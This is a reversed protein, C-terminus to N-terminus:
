SVSGSLRLLLWLILQNLWETEIARVVVVIDLESFDQLPLLLAFAPLVLVVAIIVFLTWSWM